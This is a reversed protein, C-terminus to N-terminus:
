DDKYPLRRQGAELRADLAAGVQELAKSTADAASWDLLDRSWTEAAHLFARYRAVEQVDHSPIVAARAKDLARAIERGMGRSLKGRRALLDLGDRVTKRFHAWRRVDEGTWRWTM